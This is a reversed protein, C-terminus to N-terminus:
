PSGGGSRMVNTGFRQSATSHTAQASYPHLFPTTRAQRHIHEHVHTAPARQSASLEQERYQEDGVVSNPAPSFQPLL